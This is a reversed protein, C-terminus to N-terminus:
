VIQEGYMNTFVLAVFANAFAQTMVWLNKCASLASLSVSVAPATIM